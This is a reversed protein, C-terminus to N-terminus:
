FIWSLLNFLPPTNLTANGAVQWVSWQLAESYQSNPASDHIRHLASAATSLQIEDMETEAIADQFNTELYLLTSVLSCFRPSETQQSAYLWHETTSM